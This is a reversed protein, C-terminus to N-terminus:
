VLEPLKKQTLVFILNGITFSLLSFIGATLLFSFGPWTSYIITERAITLFYFLPNLLNIQFLKDGEYVAYFIPTGLWLLRFAFAWINEIDPILVGLPCLALAIGWSFIMLLLFIPWYFLLGILPLGWYVVLVSLIIFEFFHIMLAAVLVGGVLARRPFPLSKILEHHNFMLRSSASTVQGFFNIMVIGILLYIPYHEIDAGLRTSFVALLVGFVLIPNLLYWFIGIYSGENRLKFEALALALILRREQKSPWWLNILSFVSSM